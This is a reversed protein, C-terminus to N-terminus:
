LEQRLGLIGGLGSKGTDGLVASSEHKSENIVAPPLMQPKTASLGGLGPNGTDGLEIGEERQAAKEQQTSVEQPDFVMIAGESGHYGGLGPMNTPGLVIGPEGPPLRGIAEESNAGSVFFFLTLFSLLLSPYSRKMKM